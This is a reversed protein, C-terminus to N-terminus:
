KRCFDTSLPDVMNVYWRSAPGQLMKFTTQLPPAQGKRLEVNIVATDGKQAPGSVLRSQDHSLLCQMLVLRTEYQERDLYTRASGRRDGWVNGIAQLDQDKVGKLFGEVAMQPTAAGTEASGARAPGSGRCAAVLVVALVLRKM